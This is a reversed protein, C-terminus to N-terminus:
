NYWIYVYYTYIGTTDTHWSRLIRLMCRCISSSAFRPSKPMFQMLEWFADSFHRLTSLNWNSSGLLWWTPVWHWLWPAPKKTEWLETHVEPTLAPSYRVRWTCYNAVCDKAILSKPHLSSFASGLVGGGSWEILDWFYMCIRRHVMCQARALSWGALWIPWQPGSGNLTAKELQHEAMDGAQPPRGQQSRGNPHAKFHAMWTTYPTFSVSFPAAPNNEYIKMNSPSCTSCAKDKPLVQHLPCTYWKQPNSFHVKCSKACSMM